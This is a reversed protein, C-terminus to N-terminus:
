LSEHVAPGHASHSRRSEARLVHALLARFERMVEVMMLEAVELGAVAGPSGKRSLMTEVLALFV